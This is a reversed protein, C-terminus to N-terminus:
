KSSAADVLRKIAGDFASGSHGTDVIKGETDILFYTPFGSVKYLEVVPNTGGEHYASIWSVDFEKLGKTYAERDDGENIGIVAFPKDEYLKVLERLHPM